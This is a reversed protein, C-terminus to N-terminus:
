VSKGFINRIGLTFLIFSHLCPSNFKEHFTSNIHIFYWKYMFLQKYKYYNININFVM